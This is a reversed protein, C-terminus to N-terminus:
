RLHTERDRYPLIILTSHRPRSCGTPGAYYGEELIGEYKLEIDWLSPPPTEFDVIHNKKLISRHIKCPDGNSPHVKVCEKLEDQLIHEIENDHYLPLEQIRQHIRKLTGSDRSIQTVCSRDIGSVHRSLLSILVDASNAQKTLIFNHLFIIVIIGVATFVFYLYRLDRLRRFKYSTTNIIRSIFTRLFNSISFDQYNKCSDMRLDSSLFLLPISLYVTCSVTGTGRYM